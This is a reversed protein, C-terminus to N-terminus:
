PPLIYDDRKIIELIYIQPFTGKVTYLTPSDTITTMMIFELLFFNNDNKDM